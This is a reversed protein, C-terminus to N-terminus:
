RQGGTIRRFQFHCTHDRPSVKFLYLVAISIEMVIM